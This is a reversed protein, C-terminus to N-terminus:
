PPLHIRHCKRRAVARAPGFAVIKGGEMAVIADSDHRMTRALGDRFPDGTFSLVPGRLATTAGSAAPGRAANM